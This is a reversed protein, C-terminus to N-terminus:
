SRSGSTPSRRSRTLLKYHRRAKARNGCIKMDCWRRSRNRSRDLFLWGCTEAACERVAPVEGSILLDGASKAIRWLPADLAPEQEWGWGFGGNAPQLRMHRLATQAHRNLLRLDDAPPQGGAALAAFIRYIGERLKVAEQLTRHAAALNRSATKELQTREAKSLIGSQAAFSLLGGYSKLHEVFRQLSHRHDVANVFDLCLVGGTLEFVHQPKGAL